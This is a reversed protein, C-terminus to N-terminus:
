HAIRNGAPFGRLLRHMHRDQETGDEVKQVEMRSQDDHVSRDAGSPVCLVDQFANLGATSQDSHVTVRHHERVGAFDQCLGVDAEHM